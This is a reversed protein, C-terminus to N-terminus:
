QQFLGADMSVVSAWYKLLHLFAFQHFRYVSGFRKKKLALFALVLNSHSQQCLGVYPSRRRALPKSQHLFAFQHFRPATSSYM